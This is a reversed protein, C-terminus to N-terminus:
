LKTELLEVAQKLLVHVVKLPVDEPLCLISKGDETIGLCLLPVAKAETMRFNYNRLREDLLSRREHATM